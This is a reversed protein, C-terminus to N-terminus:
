LLKSRSDELQSYDLIVLLFMIFQVAVCTVSIICAIIRGGEQCETIVATGAHRPMDRGGSLSPNICSIFSQWFLPVMMNWQKKLRFLINEVAYGVASILSLTLVIVKM